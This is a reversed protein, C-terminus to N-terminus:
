VAFYLQNSTIPTGHMVEVKEICNACLVYYRLGDEEKIVKGLREKLKELQPSTIDCEFVSKQVRAGFGKLMKSM